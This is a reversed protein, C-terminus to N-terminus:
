IWNGFNPSEHEHEDDHEHEVPQAKARCRFGIKGCNIQEGPTVAPYGVERPHARSKLKPIQTLDAGRGRTRIRIGPPRRAMTPRIIRATPM